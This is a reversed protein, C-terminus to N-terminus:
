SHRILMRPTVDSPQSNKSKQDTKNTPLTANQKLFRADALITSLISHDTYLSQSSVRRNLSQISAPSLLKGEGSGDLGDKSGTWGERSKGRLLDAQAHHENIM